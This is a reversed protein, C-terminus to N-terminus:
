LTRSDATSATQWASTRRIPPGGATLSIRAPRTAPRTARHPRYACWGVLGSLFMCSTPYIWFQLAAISTGEEAITVVLLLAYAVTWVAWPQWREATPNERTSRVIPVFSVFTSANACVLIFMKALWDHAASVFGVMGAALVVLYAATIVLDIWLATRDSKENPWGLTGKRWCLGAVALCCVACVGPLVLVYGTANQDYELVLLLTTGYAWMLWATPNPDIEHRMASRVYLAYAAAQLVGAGVALVAITGM